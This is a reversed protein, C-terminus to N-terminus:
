FPGSLAKGEDSGAVKTSQLLPIFNTRLCFAVSLRVLYFRRSLCSLLQAMM